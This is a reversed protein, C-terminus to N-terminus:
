EFSEELYSTENQPVSVQETETTIFEDNQGGTQEFVSSENLEGGAKRPKRLSRRPAYERLNIEYKEHKISHEKWEALSLTPPRTQIRKLISQNEDTIRELERKRYQRHLTGPHTEFALHNDVTNSKSMIDSIQSLLRFNEREIATYREEEIQHKKKNEFVHRHLPPPKNDVAPRTTKLKSRHRELDRERWKKELLKNASPISRFM